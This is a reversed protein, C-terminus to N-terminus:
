VRSLLGMAQRHHSAEGFTWGTAVSPPVYTAQVEVKELANRVCWVDLLSEVTKLWCRASEDLYKPKHNLDMRLVVFRLRQLTAEGIFEDCLDMPKALQPIYPPTSTLVLPKMYLIELAEAFIQRNVLLLSPTTKQDFHPKPFTCLPLRKFSEQDYLIEQDPAIREFTNSLDPWDVAYEYIANRLEASLALFPFHPKTLPLIEVSTEPAM